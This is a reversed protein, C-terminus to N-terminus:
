TPKLFPNQYRRIPVNPLGATNLAAIKIRLEKRKIVLSNKKDFLQVKNVKLNVKVKETEM